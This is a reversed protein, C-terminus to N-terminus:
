HLWKELSHHSTSPIQPRPPRANCPPPPNLIFNIPQYWIQLPTNDGMCKVLKQGLSQIVSLERCFDATQCWLRMSPAWVQAIHIETIVQQELDKGQFLSGTANLKEQPLSSFELNFFTFAVDTRAGLWVCTTLLFKLTKMQGLQRALDCIDKRSHSFLFVQLAM